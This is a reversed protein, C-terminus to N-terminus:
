EESAATEKQKEARRKAREARKKDRYSKMEKPSIKNDHDADIETFRKESRALFEEKSLSGDGNADSKKFREAARKEKEDPTKKLGWDFSLAPSSTLLVISACALVLRKM